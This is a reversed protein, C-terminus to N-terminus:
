KSTKRETRSHFYSSDEQKMVSFADHFIDQRDSMFVKDVLELQIDQYSSDM